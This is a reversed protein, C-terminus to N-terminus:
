QAEVKGGRVNAGPHLDWIRRLDSPCPQAREYQAESSCRYLTLGKTEDKRMRRKRQDGVSSLHLLASLLGFFNKKQIVTQCPRFHVKNECFHNPMEIDFQSLIIYPIPRPLLLNIGYM